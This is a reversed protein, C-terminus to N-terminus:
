SDLSLCVSHQRWLTSDLLSSWIYEIVIMCTNWVTSCMLPNCFFAKCKHSFNYLEKHLHESIFLHNLYNNIPCIELFSPILEYFSLYSCSDQITEFVSTPEWFHNNWLIVASFAIGWHQNRFPPWISVHKAYAMSGGMYRPFATHIRTTVCNNVPSWQIETFRLKRMQLLITFSIACPIEFTRWEEVHIWIKM